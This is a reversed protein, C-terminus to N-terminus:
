HSYTNPTPLFLSSMPLLVAFSLSFFASLSLPCLFYVTPPLYTTSTSSSAHSFQMLPCLLFSYHFYITSPYFTASSHLPFQTHTNPIFCTPPLCQSPPSDSPVLSYCLYIYCLQQDTLLPERLSLCSSSSSSTSSPHSMSVLTFSM